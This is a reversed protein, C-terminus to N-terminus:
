RHVVVRGQPDLTALPVTTETDLQAAFDLDDQYGISALYDAHPADAIARAPDRGYADFLRLALRAGSELFLQDPPLQDLLPAVLAGATFTDEVSPATALHEGACVIAIDTAAIPHPTTRLGGEAQDQGGVPPRPSFPIPTPQVASAPSAPQVLARAVAQRNRLCGILTRDAHAALTLARTGNSTSQVLVMDRLDLAAFETPSNGFDFGPITDGGREGCLRADPLAAALDRAQAETATPYVAAAGGAILTTLATTARLTDIVVLTHGAIQDTPPPTFFVNLRRPPM